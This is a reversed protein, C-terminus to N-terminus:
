IFYDPESKAVNGEFAARMIKFINLLLESATRVKKRGNWRFIMAQFYLQM